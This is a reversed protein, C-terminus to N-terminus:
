RSRRAKERTAQARADKLIWCAKNLRSYFFRGHRNAFRMAERIVYREAKQIATM